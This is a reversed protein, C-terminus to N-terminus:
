KECIIHILRSCDSAAVQTPQISACNVKNSEKWDSLMFHFCIFWTFYINVLASMLSIPGFKLYIYIYIYINKKEREKLFSDRSAKAKGLAYKILIIAILISLRRKEMYENESSLNKTHTYRYTCAFAWTHAWNSLWTWYKCDWASYGALRRQECSKGPLFIATTQWEEPSRGSGPILGSDGANGASERGGTYAWIHICIHRINFTQM